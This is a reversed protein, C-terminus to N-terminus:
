ALLENRPLHHILIALETQTTVVELSVTEFLGFQSRDFLKFDGRAQKNKRIRQQGHILPNAAVEIEFHDQLISADKIQRSLQISQRQTFGILSIFQFGEQFFAHPRATARLNADLGGPM